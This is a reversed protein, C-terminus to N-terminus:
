RQTVVAAPKALQGSASGDDGDDEGSILTVRGQEVVVRVGSGIVFGHEELWRGSMRLYPM